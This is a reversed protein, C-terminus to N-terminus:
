CSWSRDITRVSQVHVNKIQVDITPLIKMDEIVLMLKVQSVYFRYDSLLLCDNSMILNMSPLWEKAYVFGFGFFLCISLIMVKDNMFFLIMGNKSLTPLFGSKKCIDRLCAFTYLGEIFLELINNEFTHRTRFFNKKKHFFAWHFFFFFFFVFM